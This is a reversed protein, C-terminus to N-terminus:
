TPLPLLAAVRPLDHIHKRPVVFYRLKLDVVYTQACCSLSRSFNLLCLSNALQAKGVNRKHLLGCWCDRTLPKTKELTHDPMVCFMCLTYVCVSVCLCLRPQHFFLCSAQRAKRAEQGQYLKGGEACNQRLQGRAPREPAGTRTNMQPGALTPALDFWHFSVMAQGAASMIPATCSKALSNFALM